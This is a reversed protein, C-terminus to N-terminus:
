CVPRSYRLSAPLAIPALDSRRHLAAPSFVLTGLLREESKVGISLDGTARRALCSVSTETSSQKPCEDWTVKEVRETVFVEDQRLVEGKPEAERSRNM